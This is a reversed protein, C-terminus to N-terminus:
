AMAGGIIVSPLQDFELESMLAGAKVDGRQYVEAASEYWAYHKMAEYVLLMHFKSPFAPVDDDDAMEVPQTYYDGVVTYGTADPAPGLGLSKNPFVAFTTPRNKVARNAGFQWTDRFSEYATPYMFTETSYGLATTYIRFTDPKWKGFTESIGINALTYVQQADVTTISFSERLWEWDTHKRQIEMYAEAVWNKFRLSEGTVGSLTTLPNGTVGCESRARNVIDIFSAM